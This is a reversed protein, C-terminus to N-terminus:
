EAARQPDGNPDVEPGPVLGQTLFGVAGEVIKPSSCYFLHSLQMFMDALRYEIAVAVKRIGDPLGDAALNSYGEYRKRLEELGRSGDKDSGRVIANWLMSAKASNALNQESELAIYRDILSEFTQSAGSRSGRQDLIARTANWETVEFFDPLDISKKAILRAGFFEHTGFGTTASSIVRVLSNKLYWRGLAQGPRLALRLAWSWGRRPWKTLRRALNRISQGINGTRGLVLLHTEREAEFISDVRPALLGYVLPESSLALLAEDLAGLHVVLSKFGPSAHVQTPFRVRTRIPRSDFYVNPLARREEVVRSWAALVFSMALFGIFLGLGFWSWSIPNLSWNPESIALDRLSGHAASALWYAVILPYAITAAALVDLTANWGLNLIRSPSSSLNQWQKEIFPTGLFVVREIRNTKKSSMRRWFAESKGGALLTMVQMTREGIMGPYSLSDSYRLNGIAMRYTYHQLARLVVNGGHSHAVLYIRASPDAKTIDELLQYLQEGAKVRDNHDNKGTWVFSLIACDFHQPSADQIPPLTDRLRELTGELCVIHEYGIKRFTDALMNFFNGPEDPDPQYWKAIGDAPAGFTGHVLICYPRDKM